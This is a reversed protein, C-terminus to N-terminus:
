INKIFTIFTYCEHVFGPLQSLILVFWFFTYRYLAEWQSTDIITWTHMHM